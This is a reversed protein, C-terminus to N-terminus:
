ISQSFKKIDEINIGDPSIDHAPFVVKIENEMQYIIKISEKNDSVSSASPIISIGENFFGPLYSINSILDGVLVSNTSVHLYSLSGPTHGVTFIPKLTNYFEFEQESGKKIAVIRDESGLAVDSERGFYKLFIRFFLTEGHLEKYKKGNVVFPVEADGMVVKADKHDDLLRLLAGTHDFHGHTIAIYKLNYGPFSKFHSDLAEALKSVNEPDVADILIWDKTFPIHILFVAVPYSIGLLLKLPFTARYLNPKIEFFTEYDRLSTLPSM